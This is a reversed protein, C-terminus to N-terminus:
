YVRVTTKSLIKRVYQVYHDSAAVLPTRHFFVRACTNEYFQKRKQLIELFVNKVSCRQVVAEKNANSNFSHRSEYDTCVELAQKLM